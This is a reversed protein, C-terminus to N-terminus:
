REPENDTQQFQNPKNNQNISIIATKRIYSLVDFVQLNSVTIWKIIIYIFFLKIFPQTIQRM